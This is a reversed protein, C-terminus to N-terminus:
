TKARVSHLRELIEEPEPHKQLLDSFDLDEEVAQRAAAGAEADGVLVAGVLYGDRFVFRRHIGDEEGEIVTFSGDEPRFQGVSVVPVNVVKLTNSRPLGGFMDEAGAANRGAIVGQFQSAGWAGYLQGMHEALDGAALINPDSTRLQHDVVLGSDVDLGARRALYSNPRVGTSIVVMDGELERGDELRVGAVREDGLLEDTRARVHLNVGLRTLHEALIEGSRQDLQRPMLWDHSELLDVKGGRSALAGATEIGLLGAGICIVHQGADLAEVVRKADQITRLTTVGERQAGPLPPMFPHAGMTLILRDYALPEGNRLKVQKNARDLEAVETDLHLGIQQQAYWDLDHIPLNSPVVEGALFRTLNLRYYPLEPERTVLIIEANPALQRASEAASVGAIGGGVVVIRIKADTGQEDTAPEAVAEFRDAPAGCVPCEEPPEAGDHVYNCNLCRWREPAQSTATAAVPAEYPEFEERGAGCLPCFEPPEEGHHVYGCVTCRWSKTESAPAM